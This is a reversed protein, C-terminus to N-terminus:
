PFSVSNYNEQFQLFAQSRQWAEARRAKCLSELHACRKHLEDLQLCLLVALLVNTLVDTGREVMESREVVYCMEIEILCGNVFM